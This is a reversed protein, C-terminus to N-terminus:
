RKHSLYLATSNFRKGCELCACPRPPPKPSRTTRKSPKRRKAGPTHRNKHLALYSETKFKKQCIDCGYKRETSHTAMHQRLITTQSFSKGCETCLYRKEKNHFVRIHRDLNGQNTYRNSCLDCHFSKELAHIKQHNKLHYRKWFWRECVDCQYRKRGHSKNHSHFEAYVTFTAACTDCKFEKPSKRRIPPPITTDIVDITAYKEAAMSDEDIDIIDLEETELQELAEQDLVEIEQHEVDGGDMEIDLKIDSEDDFEEDLYVTDTDVEGGTDDMSEVMDVEEEDNVDNSCYEYDYHIEHGDLVPEVQIQQIIEPDCGRQIEELGMLGDIADRYKRDTYECRIKFKYSYELDLECKTCIFKPLEDNADIQFLHFIHVNDRQWM